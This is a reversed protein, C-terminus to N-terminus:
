FKKERSLDDAFRAMWHQKGDNSWGLEKAAIEAIREAQKGGRSSTIGLHMRRLVVDSITRAGEERIGYVV